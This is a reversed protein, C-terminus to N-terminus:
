LVAATLIDRAARLGRCLQQPVAGRQPQMSVYGDCFALLRVKDSPPLKDVRGDTKVSRDGRRGNSM